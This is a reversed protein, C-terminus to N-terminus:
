SVREHGFNPCSISFSSKSNVVPKEGTEMPLGASLWRSFGGDLVSTTDHGFCRFMWWLRASQYVGFDKNNEYAIVHSDNTIGLHQVYEAFLKEDPLMHPFKNSKDCCEDIDFCVAGPIHGNLYGERSQVSNNGGLIAEVVRLRRSTKTRLLAQALWRVSVLSPTIKM